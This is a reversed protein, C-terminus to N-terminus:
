TPSDLFQEAKPKAAARTSKAASVLNTGTVPKAWMLKVKDKDRGLIKDIAAPTRLKRDYIQDESLGAVKALDAAVKAEDECAWKRHGIKDVLQYGPIATGREALTHALARRAKIWSEIADFGDLDRALQAPDNIDPMNTPEASPVSLVPVDDFWKAALSPDLKRVADSRKKPCMGEAKCFSCAGPVLWTEAWEDFLVSNGNLKDFANAAAKAKNMSKLLEASWEILDAIPLTESRVPPRGQLRPQVITSTVKDVDFGTNELMAGLGYTRTQMNGKVEVYGQGNKLDVIELERWIPFYLVADGTGGAEFPPDITDLRFRQEILLIAKDGTEAEYAAMRGRVYDLYMQASNALEEDIEVKHQKTEVIMGLCSLADDGNHLCKEGVTHAATGRAAHLTETESPGLTEMCISGPCRVRRTTASASWHAHERSAHDPTM